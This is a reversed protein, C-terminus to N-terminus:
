LTEAEVAKKKAKGGLVFCLVAMTVSAATLVGFGVQLGVILYQWWNTVTVIKSNSDLGNMANTKGIVYMIRKASQRINAKVTGSDFYPQMKDLTGGTFELDNGAMIADIYSYANYNPWADSIVFGVFDWEGRLLDTLLGKHAGTWTTGIRNYSSMVAMTKGEKVGIEFARLYLERMTQEDAWVNCNNRNVDQDNLAFHKLTLVSGKEQAGKIVSAAMKGNLLCDESYYEGNRASFASRHINAGPAYLVTYGNQLMNEGYSKGTLYLLETNFTSGMLVESPYGMGGSIAGPAFYQTLGLPGDCDKTGPLGVSPVAITSLLGRICLNTQEALSMQDLLQDWYENDYDYERFMVLSMGNDKEYAFTIGDYEPDEVVTKNQKTSAAMEDTLSLVVKQPYTSQWDNRSLYTVSNDGKDARRNINVDDFLNHVTTGNSETAYKEYDDASVTVKHAFKENGDTPDGFEDTMGDKRGYGKAALINNVADHANNGFAFYYDGKELIYTGKNQYDYTKFCEETVTVTIRQKQGGDLMETKGFGILEVAPKELGNAKDYDTYPRQVYFQVVAKGSLDGTNTVTVSLEYEDGFLKKNVSFDTYGFTTYSNGYGFPYVIEQSYNWGDTSAVAGASGDANGRKMVMDEYRTEAYRYGVYLGEQYVIYKDNNNGFDLDYNKANTYSYDGFNQVSPASFNDCLWTDALRGSPNAKGCLLSVVAPCASRGGSGVWLCADVESVFDVIHKFSLAHDSNILLIVKAFVGDSKLKVLAKLMDYENQSLDLYSGDIGDSGSTALDHHEMGARGIVAIAADGYEAFSSSCASNVRNWAIENIWKCRDENPEGSTNSQYFSWLKKNVSYDEAELETRLTPLGQAKVEASGGMTYYYNVSRYGFLSVNLSKDLPLAGDNNWMLVAGEEAISKTLQLNYNWLAETDYNGDEDVFDSKFYTLDADSSDGSNVVKHQSLRFYANVANSYINAYHGGIMVGVFLLAMVASLVCFLIKHKFVKM